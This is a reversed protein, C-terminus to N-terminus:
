RRRMLIRALAIHQPFDHSCDALSQDADAVGDSKEVAFADDGFRAEIPPQHRRRREADM